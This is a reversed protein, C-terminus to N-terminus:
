AKLLNLRPGIALGNHTDETGSSLSYVIIKSNELYQSHDPSLLRIEDIYRYPNGGITDPQFSGIPSFQGNDNSIFVHVYDRAVNSVYRGSNNPTLLLITYM